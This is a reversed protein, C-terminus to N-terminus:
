RYIVVQITTLKGHYCLYFVSEGENASCQCFVAPIKRSCLFCRGLNLKLLDRVSANWGPSTVCKLALNAVYPLAVHGAKSMPWSLWRCVSLELLGLVCFCLKGRCCAEIFDSTSGELPNELWDKYDGTNKNASSAETWEHEPSAWGM